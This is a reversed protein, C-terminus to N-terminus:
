PGLSRKRALYIVSYVVPASLIAIAAVSYLTILLPSASETNEHVVKLCRSAIWGGHKALWSLIKKQTLYRVLIAMCMKLACRWGDQFVKQFLKYGFTFVIVIKSWTIDKGTCSDVVM